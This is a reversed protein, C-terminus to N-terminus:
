VMECGDVDTGLGSSAPGGPLVRLAFFRASSMSASGAQAAAVAAGAGPFIGFVAGGSGSMATGLAGVGQLLDKIESIEPFRAAAVAELDNVLLEPTVQGAALTSPLVPGPGSWHRPELARYIEATPVNIPPVGVALDLRCDVDLYTIREGTGGVRAPRPDLFFPVDAGIRVALGGLTAPDIGGLAAMARFVAGADSSGGGLGAGAPSAKQLTIEVRMHADQEAVFLEAARVALNRSDLPMEPWNCVISVASKEAPATEVVVRDFLSVPLFLSDLEHYGDPRRGVIRLFLNIKAPTLLEFRKAM